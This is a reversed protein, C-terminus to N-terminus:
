RRRQPGGGCRSTTKRDAEARPRCRDRRDVCPRLPHQTELRNSIWVHSNLKACFPVPKKVFPLFTRSNSGANICKVFQRPKQPACTSFSRSIKACASTLM